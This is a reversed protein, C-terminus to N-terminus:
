EDQIWPKFMNRTFPHLVFLEIESNDEGIETNQFTQDHQCQAWILIWAPYKKILGGKHNPVNTIIFGELTKISMLIRWMDGLLEPLSWIGCFTHSMKFMYTFELISNKINTFKMFLNYIHIKKLEQIVFFFWSLCILILPDKLVLHNNERRQQRNFM